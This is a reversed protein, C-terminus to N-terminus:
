EAPTLGDGGLRQAEEAAEAQLFAIAAMGLVSLTGVLSYLCFAMLLSGGSLAWALAAVAGVGMGLFVSGQVM